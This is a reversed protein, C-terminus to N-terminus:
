NNEVYKNKNNIPDPLAWNKKKKLKKTAVQVMPPGSDFMAALSRCLSCKFKELFNNHKFRLYVLDISLTRLVIINYM